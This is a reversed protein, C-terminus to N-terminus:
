PLKHMASVYSCNQLDLNVSIKHWQWAPPFIYKFFNWLFFPRLNPLYSMDLQIEPTLDQVLDSM